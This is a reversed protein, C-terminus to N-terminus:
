GWRTGKGTVAMISKMAEAERRGPTESWCLFCMGEYRALTKTLTAVQCERCFGVRRV